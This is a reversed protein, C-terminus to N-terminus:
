DKGKTGLHLHGILEDVTIVHASVLRDPLRAVLRVVEPPRLGTKKLLAFNWLTERVPADLVLRGGMMVLCRTAYRAVLRMDHTILIVTHGEKKLRCIMTMLRGASKRDLGSTPEDLIFIAPQMAYVSAIGVTRRIGFGLMSPPRDAVNELGFLSLTEAAVRRVEQDALGLNRPGFEIEERVTPCFIQHDPNQFVYGVTGALENLPLRRTDRGAITIRGGSPRLLGTLHKALTTKGSGNQGILAILEGSVATFSVHDLARVGNEYDHILDTVRILPQKENTMKGIM